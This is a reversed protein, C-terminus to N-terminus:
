QHTQSTESRGEKSRDPLCILSLLNGDFDIEFPYFSFQQADFQKMKKVPQFIGVLSYPAM